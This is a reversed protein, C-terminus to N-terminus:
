SEYDNEEFMDSMDDLDSIDFDEEIGLDQITKGFMDLSDILEKISIIDDEYNRVINELDNGDVGVKKTKSNLIEFIEPNINKGIIYYDSDNFRTNERYLDEYQSNIISKIELLRKVIAKYPLRYECHVKAILRLLTTHKWNSLDVNGNNIDKIEKELKETPLLFEAAFRNAKLERLSQDDNSIRCLHIEAEEYYHYLEHALAFIQNDYYDNTNLGIFKYKKEDENLCVYVASFFLDDKDKNEIPIYILKIGKERIFKLINDGMPSLGIDLERRKEKAMESLIYIDNSNLEKDIM